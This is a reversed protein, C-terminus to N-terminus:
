ATTTSTPSEWWSWGPYSDPAQYVIRLLTTGQAGAMYWIGVSRTTENQWVLDPVGNNDMDAVAALRWGPYVGPAPHAFGTMTSGNM